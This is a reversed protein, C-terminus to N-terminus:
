GVVIALFFFSNMSFVTALEKAVHSVKVFKGASELRNPPTVDGGRRGRLVGSDLVRSIAFM